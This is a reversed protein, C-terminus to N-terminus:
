MRDIYDECWGLKWYGPNTWRDWTSADKYRVCATSYIRENVENSARAHLDSTAVLGGVVGSVLPNFAILAGVLGIVILAIIGRILKTANDVTKEM